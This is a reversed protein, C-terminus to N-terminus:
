WQFNMEGAFTRLDPLSPTEGRAVYYGSALVGLGLARRPSAGTLLAACFGANLHDGAGTSRKPKACYPGEVLSTHTGDAFAAYRTSHVMTEVPALARCIGDALEALAEGDGDAFDLGLAGAVQRAESRNLGLVTRGLRGYARLISTLERLEDVTRKAPDALDFFFIREAPELASLIEKEIRELTGTMGQICSWNLLGVLNAEDFIRELRERGARQLLTEYDLTDYVSTNTLMVKGDDFELADTEAPDGLSIIDVKRGLDAFMPHVEPHGASGVLTTALGMAALGSSMIPANGGFKVTKPAVEINCSMGGADIVRQGFAEITPVPDFDAGPGHRRDVMSFLRDITADFGVVARCGALGDAIADFFNGDGSRM